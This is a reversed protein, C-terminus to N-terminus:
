GSDQVTNNGAGAVANRTVGARAERDLVPDNVGVVEIGGTSQEPQEAM